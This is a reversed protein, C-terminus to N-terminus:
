KAKKDKKLIESIQIKLNPIDNKVVKWVLDLDVGFYNHIIKDRMGAIKDWEILPHKDRFEKPINKVSEGIIEIQRIIASQKEVNTLFSQKNVDKVFAEINDISAAVYELFFLYNKM